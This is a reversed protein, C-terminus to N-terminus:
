AVESQQPVLEVYMFLKPTQGTNVATVQLVMIHKQDSWFASNPLSWTIPLKDNPVYIPLKDHLLLRKEEPKM